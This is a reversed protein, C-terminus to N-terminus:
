PVALLRSRFAPDPMSSSAPIEPPALRLVEDGPSVFDFDGGRSYDGASLSESIETVKVTGLYDSDSFSVGEETVAPRLAGARIVVYEDDIATGHWRGKDLLIRDGEAAIIRMRGPIVSGLEEALLELADNVKGAGTRLQRMATVTEGTRAIHLSASADFSRETEGFELLVFYDVAGRATRFADTFSEVPRVGPGPAGSLDVVDISPSMDMLYAFYSSLSHSAGDHLLIDQDEPNFFVAMSWASSDINWPDSIGWAGGLTDSASHELLSLKEAARAAAASDADFEGLAASLEDRYKEPFGKLRIIDAYALWVEADTPAILRARRYAAMARDFYFGDRSKRGAEMYRRALEERHAEFGGRTKVLPYERYIRIIENEPELSALRRLASQAKEEMGMARYARARLFLADGEDQGRVRELAELAAAGNGRRLSLAADLVALRRYRPDEAGNLMELAQNLYLAANEWDQYLAYHEVAAIRPELSGPRRRLAEELANQAKERDRLEDHLIVLQLLARMNGPSYRLSRGYAEEALENQGTLAYIEALGGNAESDHPYRRLIGRYLAGAEDYRALATLIRAELLILRRDGAAYNRAKEVEAYAENYDGLRYLLDAMGIRAESYAPNIRLAARFFEMASFYDDSQVADSGQAYWYRADYIEAANVRSLFLATLIVFPAARARVKLRPPFWPVARPKLGSGSGRGQITTKVPTTKDPTTKVPARRVPARRVPTTKVPIESPM